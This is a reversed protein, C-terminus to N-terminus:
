RFLVLLDPFGPGDEFRAHQDVLIVQPREKGETEGAVARGDDGDEAHLGDAGEGDEHDHQGHHVAQGDEDLEKEVLQEAVPHVHAGGSAAQEPPNMTSTTTIFSLDPIRCTGSPPPSCPFMSFVPQSIMQPAGVVRATLPNIIIIIINNYMIKERTIHTRSRTASSARLKPVDTVAVRIENHSPRKVGSRSRLTVTASVLNGRVSM